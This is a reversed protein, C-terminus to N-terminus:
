AQRQVAGYGWMGALMAAVFILVDTAGTSLNM